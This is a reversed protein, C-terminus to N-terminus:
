QAEPGTVSAGPANCSPNNYCSDYKICYHVIIM